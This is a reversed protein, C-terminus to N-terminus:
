RAAASTGASAPPAAEASSAGALTKEADRLYGALYWRGYHRELDVVTDIQKGALPYRVEVQAHDDLEAVLGSRLDALSQDLALGYSEAAIAKLEAFFPALRKLSEEMGAARLDADSAIGTRRAAACLRDIGAYARGPDGLPARQGWASLAAIVQAYHRREDDTYENREQVYKIGFLGLSRAADRLDSNQNALQADFGRKLKQEAGPASLTQLLPLLQDDLPLLTLPWRSGGDRWAAQLRVYDSTPVAATAFGVLDDDHLRQALVRVATAPESAAGPLEAPAPAPERSCAALLGAALGLARCARACTSIAKGM